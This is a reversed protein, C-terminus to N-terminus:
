EKAAQAETLRRGLENATNKWKEIEDKLKEVIYEDVSSRDLRPDTSLTVDVVLLSELRHVIGTIVFKDGNMYWGALDDSNVNEVQCTFQQSSM